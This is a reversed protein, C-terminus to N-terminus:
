KPSMARLRSAINLYREDRTDPLAYLRTLFDVSDDKPMPKIRDCVLRAFKLSALFCCLVSDLDPEYRAAPIGDIVALVGCYHYGRERAQAIVAEDKAVYLQVLAFEGDRGLVAYAVESDFAVQQHDDM